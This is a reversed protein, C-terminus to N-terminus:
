LATEPDGHVAARADARPLRELALEAVRDHVAQDLVLGVLGVLEAVADDRLPPLVVAAARLARLGHAAQLALEADGGVADDARAGDRRELALEVGVLVEQPSGIVG